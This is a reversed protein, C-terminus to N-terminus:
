GRVCATKNQATRSWLTYKFMDKVEPDREPHAVLEKKNYVVLYHNTANCLVDTIAEVLDIEYCKIQTINFDVAMHDGGRASVQEFNEMLMNSQNTVLRHCFRVHGELYAEESRTKAPGGVAAGLAVSFLLCVLSIVHCKDM